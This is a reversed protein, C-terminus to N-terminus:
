VQSLVIECAAYRAFRSQKENWGKPMRKRISIGGHRLKDDFRGNEQETIWALLTWERIIRAVQWARPNRQFLVIVAPTFGQIDQDSLALPSATQANDRTAKLESHVLTRVLSVPVIHEKILGCQDWREGKEQKAIRAEASAYQVGNKGAACLTAMRVAHLAHAKTAANEPFEDIVKAAVLCHWFFNTVETSTATM